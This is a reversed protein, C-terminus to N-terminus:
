EVEMPMLFTAEEFDDDEVVQVASILPKSPSSKMRAMFRTKTAGGFPAAEGFDGDDFFADMDSEVEDEYSRKKANADHSSTGGFSNQSSATTSQSRALDPICDASRDLTPPASSIPQSSHGGIKHLGCFPMLENSSSNTSIGPRSPLTSSHSPPPDSSPFPFGSSGLTKHTKYGEPVSKRVRMGVSLLSSQTADDLPPSLPSRANPARGFFSNLTTQNSPQYQRKRAHGSM